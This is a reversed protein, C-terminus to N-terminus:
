SQQAGLCQCRVKAPDQGAVPGIYRVTAREGDSQVRDGVALNVEMDVAQAQARAGASM